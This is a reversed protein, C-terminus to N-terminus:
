NPLSPWFINIHVTPYVTPSMIYMAWVVASWRRALQNLLTFGEMHLRKRLWLGSVSRSWRVLEM